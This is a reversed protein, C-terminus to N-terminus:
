TGASTDGISNRSVLVVQYRFHRGTSQVRSVQSECSLDIGIVLHLCKVTPRYGLCFGEMSCLDDRLSISGLRCLCCISSQCQLKNPCQRVLCTMLGCCSARMDILGICAANIVVDDGPRATTVDCRTLHYPCYRFFRRLSRCGFVRVAASSQPGCILDASAWM